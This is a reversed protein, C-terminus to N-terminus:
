AKEQYTKRAGHKRHEAIHDCVLGAQATGPHAHDHQGGHRRQGLQDRAHNGHGNGINGIDRYSIREAGANDIQANEDQQIKSKRCRFSDKYWCELWPWIRAALKLMRM